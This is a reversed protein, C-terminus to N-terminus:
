HLFQLYLFRIKDKDMNKTCYNNSPISLILCLLATMSSIEFFKVPRVPILRCLAMMMESHANVM